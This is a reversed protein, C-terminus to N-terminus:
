TMQNKLMREFGEVILKVGEPTDRPTLTIDLKGYKKDPSKRSFLGSKKTSFDVKLEGDVVDMEFELSVRAKEIQSLTLPVLTILPVSIEKTKVEPEGNVNIQSLYPYEIVVIKPTLTSKVTGDKEYSKTESFYKDILETHQDMLNINATTIARHLAEILAKFDVM